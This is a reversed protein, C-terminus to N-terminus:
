RRRRIPNSFDAWKHASVSYGLIPPPYYGNVWM